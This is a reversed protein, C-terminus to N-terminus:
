WKRSRVTIRVMDDGNFFQSTTCGPNGLNIPDFGVIQKIDGGRDLYEQTAKEVFARDPQFESKKPM